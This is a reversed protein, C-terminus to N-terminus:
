PPRRRGGGTDRLLPTLIGRLTLGFRYTLMKLNLINNVQSKSTYFRYLDSKGESVCKSVSENM